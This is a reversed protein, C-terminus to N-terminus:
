LAEELIANVVPVGVTIRRLELASHRSHASLNRNLLQMIRERLHSSGDQPWVCMGCGASEYCIARMEQNDIRRQGPVLISPRRHTLLERVTFYGAESLVIRHSALLTGFSRSWETIEMGPLAIPGSYSGRIVTGSVGADRLANAALSFFGRASPRGAGGCTVLVDRSEQRSTPAIAAPPDVILENPFRKSPMALDALTLIRAFIKHMERQRFAMRHSDRLPYTVLLSPIGERALDAVASSDFFTSWVICNVKETLSASVIASSHAFSIRGAVSKRHRQTGVRIYRLAGDGCDSWTDYSTEALIIPELGRQVLGRAIGTVLRMHGGTGGAGISVVAVKTM